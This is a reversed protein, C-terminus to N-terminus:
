RARSANPQSVQQLLKQAVESGPNARLLLRFERQADQLLGAEAYLTGLILHSNPHTKQVRDIESQKAASLVRFRAESAPPTPSKVEAGDKFATVQWAYVVGRPLPVAVRWSTAPQSLSRSVEKFDSDYVKVVYSTAGTLPQWRFTPRDGRVVIGVPELLRFPVGEGSPGMLTGTKGQLDAVAPAINLRETTLVTKVAGNLSTSLEGLGGINGTEDLTVTGGADNLAVLIRPSAVPSPSPQVPSRGISPVPSPSVALEVDKRQASRWGIWILTPIVLLVLAAMAFRPWTLWPFFSTKLENRSDRRTPESVDTQAPQRFEQLASLEESCQRCVELHVTAIERRIEDAENDVLAALNEYTLHDDYKPESSRLNESLTLLSQSLHPEGNSLRQYCEDCSALHDDVALLEDPALTRQRYGDMRQESPHEM